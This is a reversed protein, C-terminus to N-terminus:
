RGNSEKQELAEFVEARHELIFKSAEGPTVLKHGRGDKRVPFGDLLLVRNTAARTLLRKGKGTDAFVAKVFFEHAPALNDDQLARRLRNSPKTKM